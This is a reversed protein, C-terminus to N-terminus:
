KNAYSHDVSKQWRARCMNSRECANACADFRGSMSLCLNLSQEGCVCPIWGSCFNHLLVPSFKIARSEGEKLTNLFPFQRTNMATPYLIEVWDSRVKLLLALCTRQKVRVFICEIFTLIFSRLFFHSQTKQNMHFCEGCQNLISPLSFLLTFISHNIRIRIVLTTQHIRFPLSYSKKELLFVLFM